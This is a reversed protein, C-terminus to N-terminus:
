QGLRVELDMSEFGEPLEYEITMNVQRDDFPFLWHHTLQIGRYKAEKPVKAKEHLLSWIQEEPLGGTM